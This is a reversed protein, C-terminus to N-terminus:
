ASNFIIRASHLYSSDNRNDTIGKPFMRDFDRHNCLWSACYKDNKKPEIDNIGM